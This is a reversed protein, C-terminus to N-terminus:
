VFRRLEPYARVRLTGSSGAGYVGTQYRLGAGATPPAMQSSGGALTFPQILYQSRNQVQAFPLSGAGASGEQVTQLAPSGGVYQAYLYAYANTIPPVGGNGDDILLRIRGKLQDGAAVTNAPTAGGNSGVNAHNQFTLLSGAATIQNVLEVYNGWADSGYTTSIPTMGTRTIALTTAADVTTILNGGTCRYLPQQGSSGYLKRIQVARAEAVRMAMQRHLHTGDSTAASSLFAGTLAGGENTMSRVDNEILDIGYRAHSLVWSLIQTNARDCADRREVTATNAYGAPTRQYITEWLVKIGADLFAQINAITDAIVGDAVTIANSANTVGPAGGPGNIFNNTGQQMTALHPNLAVLASFTRGAFRTGSNWANTTIGSAGGNGIYEADDLFMELCASAPTNTLSFGRNPNSSAPDNLDPGTSGGGKLDDRSDGWTIMKLMEGLVPPGSSPPPAVVGGLALKFPRLPHFM